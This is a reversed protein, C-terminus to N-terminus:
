SPQVQVDPPSTFGSPRGSVPLAQLVVRATREAAFGDNGHAFERSFRARGSALSAAVSGDMVGDLAAALSEPDFAKLAAGYEVLPLPDSNGRDVVVVPKELLVAELATTSWMTAILDADLMLRHLDGEKVVRAPISPFDKLMRESINLRDAPHPKLILDIDARPALASYLARTAAEVDSAPTLSNGSVPTFLIVRRSSSSRAAASKKLTQLADLGPAGCVRIRSTPWGLSELLAKTREGWVCTLGAHPWAHKPHRTVLGHQVQVLPVGHEQAVRGLMRGVAMEHNALVLVGPNIKTLIRRTALELPVIRATAFLLADLLVRNSSAVAEHEALCARLTRAVRLAAPVRGAFRAVSNLPAWSSHIAGIWFATLGQRRLRGVLRPDRFVLFLPSAERAAALMEAVPALHKVHSDSWVCFLAVRGSSALPHGFQVDTRRARGWVELAARAPLAAIRLQDWRKRETRGLGLLQFLADDLVETACADDRLGARAVDAARFIAWQREYNAM